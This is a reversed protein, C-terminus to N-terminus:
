VDAPPATPTNRYITRGRDLRMDPAARRTGRNRYRNMLSAALMAGANAMALGAAGRRQHRLRWALMLFGGATLYPIITQAGAGTPRSRAVQWLFDTAAM